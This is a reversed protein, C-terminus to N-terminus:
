SAASRDYPPPRLAKELYVLGGHLFCLFPAAVYGLNGPLYTNALLLIIMLVAPIHRVRAFVNNQRHTKIRDPRFFLAQFGPMVFNSLLWMGVALRIMFKSVDPGPPTRYWDMVAGLITLFIPLGVAGFGILFNTIARVRWKGSSFLIRNHHSFWMFAFCLIQINLMLEWHWRARIIDRGFFDINVYLISQLSLVAGILILAIAGYMARYDKILKDKVASGTQSCKHGDTFPNPGVM